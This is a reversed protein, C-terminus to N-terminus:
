VVSKRDTRLDHTVQEYAVGKFALAIRVRYATTSRWYGHLTLSM